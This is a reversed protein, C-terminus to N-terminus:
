EREKPEAHISIKTIQPFAKRFRFKLDETLDHVRAVPLDPEM